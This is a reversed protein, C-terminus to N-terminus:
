IGWTDCLLASLPEDPICTFGYDQPGQVGSGRDSHHQLDDAVSARYGKVWACTAEELFGEKPPRKGNAM